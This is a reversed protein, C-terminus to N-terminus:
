VKRERQHICIVVPLCSMTQRDSLGSGVTWSKTLILVSVVAVRQEESWQEMEEMGYVGATVRVSREGALRTLHVLYRPLMDYFDRFTSCSGCVIMGPDFNYAMVLPAINAIAKANDKDNDNACKTDSKTDGTSVAQTDQDHNQNQSRRSQLFDYLVAQTIM